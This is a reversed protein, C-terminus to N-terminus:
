DEKKPVPKGKVVDIAHQLRMAGLVEHVAELEILAEEMLRVAASRRADLIHPTAM